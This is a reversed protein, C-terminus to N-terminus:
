CGPRADERALLPPGVCVRASSDPLGASFLPPATVVTAPEMLLEVAVVMGTALAAAM